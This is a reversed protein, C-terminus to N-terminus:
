ACVLEACTELLYCSNGYDDVFQICDSILAWEDNITVIVNDDTDLAYQGDHLEVLDSDDCLAYTDDYLCVTDDLLAYQGDHLEIADDTLAYQGDHLETCNNDHTTVTEQRGNRTIRIAERADDQSIDCEDVEDWAYLDHYCSECYTDYDTCREDDEDIRCNCHSCVSRTDSISPDTGDTNDAAFEGRPCITITEDDNRDFQRSRDLYPMPEGETHNLTCRCQDSVVISQSSLWNLIWERLENENTSSLCDKSVWYIRDLFHTEEDDNAFLKARIALQKGFRATVLQLTDPNACFHHRVIASKEDNGSMCSCIGHESDAYVQFADNGTVLSLKLPFASVIQFATQCNEIQSDTLSLRGSLLASCKRRLFKGFSLSRRSKTDRSTVSGPSFALHTNPNDVDLRVHRACKLIQRAIAGVTAHDLQSFVRAIAARVRGIATQPKSAARTRYTRAKVKSHNPECKYANLPVEKDRISALESIANCEHPSIYRGNTRYNHLM